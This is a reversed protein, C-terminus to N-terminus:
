PYSVRSTSFLFKGISICYLALVNALCFFDHDKALSLRSLQLAPRQLPVFTRKM